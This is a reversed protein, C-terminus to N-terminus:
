SAAYAHQRQITGDARHIVLRSPTHEHALERAREVAATKTEHLSGPQSQGEVAVRWGESSGDPKVHYVVAADDGSGRLKKLAAVTLGAAAAAGATSALIKKTSM